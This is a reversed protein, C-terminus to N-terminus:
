AERTMASLVFVAASWTFGSNSILLKYQRGTNPRKGATHPLGSGRPVAANLNLAEPNARTDHCLAAKTSAMHEDATTFMSNYFQILLVSPRAGRAPLPNVDSPTSIDAVAGLRLVHVELNISGPRFM